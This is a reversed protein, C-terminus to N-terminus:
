SKTENSINSDEINRESALLDIVQNIRDDFKKEIEEDMQEDNDKRYGRSQGRKDLTYRVHLSALGPNVKYDQMFHYNLSVALDLENEHHIKRSEVLIKRIEPDRAQLAYITAPNCGFHNAIAVIYGRKETAIELFEDKDPDFAIRGGKGGAM